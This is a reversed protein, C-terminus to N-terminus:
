FRRPSQHAAVPSLLVLVGNYLFCLPFFAKANPLAMFDGITEPYTLICTVLTVVAPLTYRTKLLWSGAHTKQWLMFKANLHVFLAGVLGAFVGLTVFFFLELVNWDGQKFTTSFLATDEYTNLEVSLIMRFYLAACTSCFFAKVYNSVLYHTATVEISFLVGGMPAGFNAATGAAFGASLIKLRASDTPVLHEFLSTRCLQNALVASFHVWPGEKGISLGSGLCSALSICKAFLTQLTLAQPLDAGAMIAKMQPIGSGNAAGGSMYHSVWVGFLVLVLSYGTWLAFRMPELGTFDIHYITWNLQQLWVTLNDVLNGFAASSVGVCLLLLWLHYWAVCGRIARWFFSAKLQALM